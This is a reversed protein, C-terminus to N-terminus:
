YKLYKSLYTLKWQVAQKVKAECRVSVIAFHFLSWGIKRCDRM